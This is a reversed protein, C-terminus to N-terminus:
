RAPKSLQCRVLATTFERSFSSHVHKFLRIPVTEIRTAGDNRLDNRWRILARESFIVHAWPFVSFLHGGLPHYWPPGFSAIVKGGPNLSDYMLQLIAAPESFHEFADLSVIIDAVATLQTVFHCRDAVGAQIARERARQLGDELIDVGFVCKAGRQAMEIAENGEGCGFDVVTKGKIQSLLEEGLLIALKSKGAYASGDMYPPAAPAIYKLLRYQLVDLM